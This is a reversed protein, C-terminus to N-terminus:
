FNQFNIEIFKAIIIPQIRNVSKFGNGKKQKIRPLQYNFDHIKWTNSTANRLVTFPTTLKM